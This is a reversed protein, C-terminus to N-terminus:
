RISFAGQNLSTHFRQPVTPLHHLFGNQWHSMGHVAPHLQAAQNQQNHQLLMEMLKKEHECSEKLEEKMFDIIDKLPDNEITSKMLSLMESIADSTENRKGQKKGRLPLFTKNQQDNSDNSSEEEM